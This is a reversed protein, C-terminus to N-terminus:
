PGDGKLDSTAVAYGDMAANDFLPMPARSVVPRALVRGKAQQLSCREPVQPPPVIRAIRALADEVEILPKSSMRACCACGDAEIRDQVNM